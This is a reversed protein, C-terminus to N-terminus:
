RAFLLYRMDFEGGTLNELELTRIGPAESRYAQVAKLYGGGWDAAFHNRLTDVPIGDLRVQVRADLERSCRFSFTAERAEVRLVLRDGRDCSVFGQRGKGDVIPEWGANAAVTVPSEGPALFGARQFLDTSLAPPLARGPQAGSGPRASISKLFAYLLYGAILHGEDNPHVDDPSLRGWALAGDAILPWLSERYSIVPLGYHRALRRQAVHNASDGARNVMQLLIVPVDSRQMCQRLLGELTATSAATDGPDDNVAFDVVILDPDHLLLDEPARSCGFRSTTAGIGANIETVEVAPLANRLFGCLRSSYRYSAQSSSAGETISGGIFGITVKRDSGCKALFRSLRYDEGREVAARAQLSADPWRFGAATFATDWRLRVPSIREPELGCGALCCAALLAHFAALAASLCRPRLVGRSIPSM